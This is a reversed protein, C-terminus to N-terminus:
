FKSICYDITTNITDLQHVAIEAASHTCTDADTMVAPIRENTSEKITKISKRANNMYLTAKITLRAYCSNKLVSNKYNQCKRYTTLVDYGDFVLQQTAASIDIMIDASTKAAVVGCVAMDRHMADVTAAVNEDQAAVCVDSEERRAEITEVATDVQQLPDFVIEEVQHQLAVAADRAIQGMESLVGDVMVEYDITDYNITGANVAVLCLAVLVFAAKM